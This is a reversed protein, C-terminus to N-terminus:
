PSACAGRDRIRPREATRVISSARDRYTIGPISSFDLARMGGPDAGAGIVAELVEALTVEGENRAAVDVYPHMRLFQECHTALRPIHPGGVIVLSQPSRQKLRRAFAINVEHNWVYS